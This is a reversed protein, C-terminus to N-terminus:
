RGPAGLVQLLRGIGDAFYASERAMAVRILHRPRWDDHFFVNGAVVGVGADLLRGRADEDGLDLDKLDLLLLSGAQPAASVLQPALEMATALNARCVDRLDEVHGYYTARRLLEAFFMRQRRAVGFQVIALAEDVAHSIASGNCVIFGLKDENLGFTKGTDWIAVWECPLEELDWIRCLRTSDHVGAVAFAHDVLLVAHTDACAGAVALLDADSWCGGTPNEPSTILVAIPNRPEQRKLNAIRDVLADCDLAGLVGGRNSRVFVPRVDAREELFLRMIDICPTTTVVNLREFEHQKRAERLAASLVRELAISGSFTHRVPGGVGVHVRLFRRVALDLDEDVQAQKEPTWFPAFRLSLDEITDDMYLSQVYDAVPVQPYGPGLDYRALYAAELEQITLTNEVM